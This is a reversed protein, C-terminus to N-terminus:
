AGPIDNSGDGLDGPVTGREAQSGADWDVKGKGAALLAKFDRAQRYLMPDTVRQRDTIDWSWWSGDDNAEEQTKLLYSYAFMAPKTIQGNVEISPAAAMATMWRRSYKLQTSKMAILVNTGNGDAELMIGYHQATLVLDHGNPLRNVGGDRVSQGLLPSTTPHAAVFGGGKDRPIWEILQQTYYCPIFRVEGYIAQNVTNLLMGPEAGKIYGAMKTKCQPSLDQLVVLFPMAFSERTTEEFGQGADEIQMKALQAAEHETLATSAAAKAPVGAATTKTAATQKTAM